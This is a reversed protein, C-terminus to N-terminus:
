IGDAVRCLAEHLRVVQPIMLQVDDATVTYQAYRLRTAEDLQAEIRRLAMERTAGDRQMVRRLRVELPATVAVIVDMARWAGSEILIAAEEVAYTPRKAETELAAVWALFDRAVAPHVAENLQALREPHGFVQAALYPRNVAGNSLYAEAGFLRMIEERLRTDTSMLGKARTDAVYVAAGMMELLRAVTSKGSGIGGTLGVRLLRNM